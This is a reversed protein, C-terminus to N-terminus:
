AGARHIILFRVTYKTAASFPVDMDDVQVNGNVWSWQVGGPTEFGRNTDDSVAICVVAVPKARGVDLRFKTGFSVLGSWEKETITYATRADVDRALEEVQRALVKPDDSYRATRRIPANM